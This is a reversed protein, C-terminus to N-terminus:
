FKLCSKIWRHREVASFSSALEIVVPWLLTDCGIVGSNLSHALDLSALLEHCSVKVAAALTLMTKSPTVRTGSKLETQLDYQWSECYISDHALMEFHSAM